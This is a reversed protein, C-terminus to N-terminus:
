WGWLITTLITLTLVAGLRYNHTAGCYFLGLVQAIVLITPGHTKVLQISQEVGLTYVTGIILVIVAIAAGLTILFRSM